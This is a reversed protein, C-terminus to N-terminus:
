ADFEQLLQSPLQSEMLKDEDAADAPISAIGANACGRPESKRAEGSGWLRMNPGGTIHPTSTTDKMVRSSPSWMGPPQSTTQQRVTNTSDFPKRTPTGHSSLRQGSSVDPGSLSLNKFDPVPLDTGWEQPINLGQHGLHDTGQNSGNRSRRFPFFSRKSIEPQSAASLTGDNSFVSLSNGSALSGSRYSGNTSHSYYSSADSSDDLYDHGTTTTHDTSGITSADWDLQQFGSAAAFELPVGGFNGKGGFSHLIQPPGMGTYVSDVPSRAVADERISGLLPPAGYTPAGATGPNRMNVISERQRERERVIHILQEEWPRRVNKYLNMCGIAEFLPGSPAYDSESRLHDPMGHLLEPLDCPLMYDGKEAQKMYTPYNATDRVDSWPHTLGLVSLDVELGHGILIKGKIYHGVKQRAVALTLTAKTSEHPLIGTSETRYDLVPVPVAVLDDMVVQDDWNTLTVRGVASDTKSGLGIQVMGCRLAFYMDSKTM